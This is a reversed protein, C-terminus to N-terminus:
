ITCLIATNDNINHKRTLHLSLIWDRYKGSHILCHDLIINIANQYLLLCLLLFMALSTHLTVFLMWLKCIHWPNKPFLQKSYCSFLVKRKLIILSISCTLCCLLAQASFRRCVLHLWDMAKAQKPYYGLLYFKENLKPTRWINISSFFIWSQNSFSKLSRGKFKELRSVM